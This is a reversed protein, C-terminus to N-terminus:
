RANREEGAPTGRPPPRAAAERVTAAGDGRRRQKGRPRTTRHRRYEGAWDAGTVDDEVPAPFTRLLREMGEVLPAALAHFEEGARTLGVGGGGREFLLAGLEHELERVHLAVSPESMDLHEAARGM